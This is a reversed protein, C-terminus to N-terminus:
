PNALKILPLNNNQINKATHQLLSFDIIVRIIWAFAAGVLGFYKVLIWILPIYIALEVLHFLATLKPKGQSQVLTYPIQSLGNFYVGVLLILVVVISKQAFTPSLWVTLFPFAFIASLICIVFM